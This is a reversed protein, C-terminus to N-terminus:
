DVDRGRMGRLTHLGYPYQNLHHAGHGYDGDGKPYGARVSDLTVGAVHADVFAIPLELRPTPSAVGGEIENFQVRLPYYAFLLGKHAPFLVESHRTAGWQSPGTRTSPDWYDPRAIFTCGYYYPTPGARAGRGGLGRPYDPPYFSDHSCEGNYYVDALAYNWRSYASWYKFVTASSGCRVVTDADSYVFYPFQDGYDLAYAGLVACHQRMNSFSAVRQGSRRIQALSPAILSILVTVFAMVLLLEVLSFGRSSRRYDRVAPLCSASRRRRAAIEPALQLAGGVLLVIFLVGNRAALHEATKMSSWHRELLGFCGCLPPEAAGVFRLLMATSFGFGVAAGAFAIRPYLRLLWGLSIALEINVIALAFPLLLVRPVFPWTALAHEFGTLDAAKLLAAILLLLMLGDVM